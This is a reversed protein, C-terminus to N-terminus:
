NSYANDLAAGITTRTTMIISLRFSKSDINILSSLVICLNYGHRHDNKWDIHDKLKKNHSLVIHVYEFKSTSQVYGMSANMTKSFLDNRTSHSFANTNTSYAYKTAHELVVIIGSQVHKPMNTFPKTDLTPMKVNLFQWSSPHNDSQVRGFGWKCSSVYSFKDPHIKGDERYFDKKSSNRLLHIAVEHHFKELGDPLDNHLQELQNHHWYAVRIGNKSVSGTSDSDEIRIISHNINDLNLNSDFSPLDNVQMSGHPTSHLDPAYYLITNRNQFITTASSMDKIPFHPRRISYTSQEKKGSVSTQFLHCSSKSGDQFTSIWPRPDEMPINTHDHPRINSQSITIRIVEFNGPVFSTSHIQIKFSPYCRHYQM